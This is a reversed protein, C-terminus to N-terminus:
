YNCNNFPAIKFREKHNIHVFSLATPVCYWRSDGTMFGSRVGRYLIITSWYQRTEWQVCMYHLVLSYWLAGRERWMMRVGLDVLYCFVFFISWFILVLGRSDKKGEGVLQYLPYFFSLVLDPTPVIDIYLFPINVPISKM